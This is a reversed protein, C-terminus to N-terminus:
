AGKGALAVAKAAATWMDPCDIVACGFNRLRSRAFDADFLAGPRVWTPGALSPGAGPRPAPAPALAQM